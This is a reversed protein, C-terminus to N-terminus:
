TTLVIEQHVPHVGATLVTHSDEEDDEGDRERKWPSGGAPGQSLHCYYRALPAQMIAGVM